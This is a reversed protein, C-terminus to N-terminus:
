KINYRIGLSLASTIGLPTDLYNHVSSSINDTNKSVTYDFVAEIKRTRGFIYRAGMGGTVYFATAKEMLNYQELVENDETKVRSRNYRSRFVTIGGLIDFALRKPTSHTTYRLLVPFISNWERSKLDIKLPKGNSATGKSSTIVEKHNYLFGAQLALRPTVFYGINAKIPSVTPKHPLGSPYIIEYRQSAAQVDLYLRTPTNTQAVSLVNCLVLSIFVSTKVLHILLRIM